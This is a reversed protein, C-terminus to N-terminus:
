VKRKLIQNQFELTMKFLFEFFITILFIELVEDKRVRLLRKHLIEEESAKLFINGVPFEQLNLSNRDIKPRELLWFPFASLTLGGHWFRKTLFLEISIGLRKM